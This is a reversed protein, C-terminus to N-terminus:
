QARAPKRSLERALLTLSALVLASCVFAALVLVRQIVSDSM